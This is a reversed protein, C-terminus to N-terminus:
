EYIGMKPRSLRASKINTPNVQKVATASRQKTDAIAKFYRM